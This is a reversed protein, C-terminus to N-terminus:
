PMGLQEESIGQAKEVPELAFRASHRAGAQGQEELLTKPM